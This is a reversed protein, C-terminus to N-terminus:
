AEARPRSHDEGSVPQGSVFLAVAPADYIPSFRKRLDDGRRHLREERILTREPRRAGLYSAAVLGNHGAGLIIVDYKPKM